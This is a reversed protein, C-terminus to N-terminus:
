GGRFERRRRLALAGLALLAVSAPEPLAMWLRGGTLEGTAPSWFHGDFGVLAGSGPTMEDGTIADLWGSDNVTVDISGILVDGDVPLTIQLEPDPDPFPWILEPRPLSPFLTNAGSPDEFDFDAALGLTADTAEFDLQLARFSIDGANDPHGSGDDVFWVDVNVLEGPTYPGAQDPRLDVFIDAAAISAASVVAVFTFIRVIM